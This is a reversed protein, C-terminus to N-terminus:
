LTPDAPVYWQDFIVTCDILSNKERNPKMTIDSICRFDNPSHMRDFWAYMHREEGTIQFKVQVVKYDRKEESEASRDPLIEQKLVSVGARIAEASALSQLKPGAEESAQPQPENEALWNIEDQIMDRQTLYNKSLALESEAKERDLKLSVRKNDYSKYAWLSLLIVAAAAFFTILKKERDSM